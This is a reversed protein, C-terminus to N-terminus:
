GFVLGRAVGNARADDSATEGVLEPLPMTATRARGPPDRRTMRDWWGVIAIAPDGIDILPISVGLSAAIASNKEGDASRLIIKARQVLSHALARSNALATLQEREHATLTLEFKRPRGTRM